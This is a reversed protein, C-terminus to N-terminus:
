DLPLYEFKDKEVVGPKYALDRGTFYGYKELEGSSLQYIKAAERGLHFQTPNSKIKKDLIEIKDTLTTKIIFTFYKKRFRLPGDTPLTSDITFFSYPKSICKRYFKMFNNYDSDVSHNIAINELERKNHIKTM